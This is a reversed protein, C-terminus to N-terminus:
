GAVAKHCSRDSNKVTKCLNRYIKSDDDMGAIRAAERVDKSGVPYLGLNLLVALYNFKHSM